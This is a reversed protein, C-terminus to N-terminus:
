ASLAAAIADAVAPAGVRGLTITYHNAGDVSRVSRRSPDEAAWAQAADLPQMPNPDDALGRPALLMTAPVALDHAFSTDVLGAVDARVADESVSSRLAPPEGVLDHDAYEALDGDEITGDVLGGALAAHGRWWERYEERSDFQMKLRALAPGLFADAFVQPDVGRAAPIALGGDVLVLSGVRDPHEVGFRAVVYAGLSHGVLVARDLRLEDLVALLDAVHEAM